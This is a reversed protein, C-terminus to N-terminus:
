SECCKCLGCYQAFTAKEDDTMEACHFADRFNKINKFRVHLYESQLQLSRFASSVDIQFKVTFTHAIAMWLLQRSTLKFVSLSADHGGNAEWKIYNEDALM